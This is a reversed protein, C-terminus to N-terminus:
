RAARHDDLEDHFGNHPDDIPAQIRLLRHGHDVEAGGVGRFRVDATFVGHDVDGIVAVVVRQHLPQPLEAVLDVDGILGAPQRRDDATVRAPHATGVGAALTHDHAVQTVARIM